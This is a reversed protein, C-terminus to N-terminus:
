FIIKFYNYLNKLNHKNIIDEETLNDKTPFWNVKRGDLGIGETHLRPNIMNLGIGWEDWVLIYYGRGM